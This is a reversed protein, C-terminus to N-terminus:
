ATGPSLVLPSNSLSVFNRTSIALQLRTKFAQRQWTSYPTLRWLTSYNTAQNTWDITLKNRRRTGGARVVDVVVVRPRVRRGLPFSFSSPRTHVLLTITTQESGIGGTQAKLPPHISRVCVCSAVPTRRASTLPGASRVSLFLSALAPYLALGGLGPRECLFPWRWGLLRRCCGRLWGGRRWNIFTLWGWCVTGIHNQIPIANKNNNEHQSNNGQKTTKFSNIIRKSFSLFFFPTFSNSPAPKLAICRPNPQTSNLRAHLM